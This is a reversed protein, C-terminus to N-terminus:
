ARAGFHRPCEVRCKYEDSAVEGVIALRCRVLKHCALELCEVLGAYLAKHNRAVVVAVVGVGMVEIAVLGCRRWGHRAVLKRLDVAM